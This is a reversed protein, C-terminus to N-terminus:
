FATETCTESTPLSKEGLFFIVHANSGSDCAGRADNIAACLPEAMMVMGPGGGYPRDDVTRHNDNTYDRPNWTQVRLLGRKVARSTIGYEIVANVMEPFLTIVEIQLM